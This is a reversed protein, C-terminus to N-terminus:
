MSHRTPQISSSGPVGPVGPLVKKQDRGSCRLIRTWAMGHWAMGHLGQRGAEQFVM